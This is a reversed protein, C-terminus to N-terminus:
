TPVDTTEKETTVPPRASRAGSPYCEDCLLGHGHPCQRARAAAIRERLARGTEEPVAETPRQDKRALFKHGAHVDLECVDRRRSCHACLLEKATPEFRVRESEGLGRWHPGEHAIVGPTRNVPAAAARIAAIALDVEDAMDRHRTLVDEIGSVHWEVGGSRLRVTRVFAALERAGKPTMKTV